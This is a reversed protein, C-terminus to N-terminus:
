YSLIIISTFTLSLFTHIFYNMLWLIIHYLLPLLCKEKVSTNLRSLRVTDEFWWFIDVVIFGPILKIVTLSYQSPHWVLLLYSLSCPLSPYQSEQSSMKKVMDKSFSTQYGWSAHAVSHPIHQNVSSYVGQALCSLFRAFLLVFLSEKFDWSFLWEVM